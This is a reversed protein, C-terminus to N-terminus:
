SFHAGFSPCHFLIHPRLFSTSFLCPGVLATFRCRLSLFSDDYVCPTRALVRPHRDIHVCPLLFSHLALTYLPRFHRAVDAAKEGWAEARCYRAFIILGTLLLLDRRQWSRAAAWCPLPTFPRGPTTRPKSKVSKYVERFVRGGRGERRLLASVSKRRARAKSFDM